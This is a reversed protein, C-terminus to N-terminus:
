EKRQSRSSARLARDIQIYKKIGRSIYGRVSSEKLKCIEAIDATTFGHSRLLLCERERKALKALNDRVQQSTIDDLLQSPELQEPQEQLLSDKQVLDPSKPEESLSGYTYTWHRFRRRWWRFHDNAKNRGVVYLWKRQPKEELDRIQIWSRSAAVFLEICM